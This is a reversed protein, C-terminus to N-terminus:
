RVTPRRPCATWRPRGGAADMRVIEGPVLVTRGPHSADIQIPLVLRERAGTVWDAHPTAALAATLRGRRVTDGASLAVKLDHVRLAAFSADNSQRWWVSTSTLGAYLGTGLGIVAAIAIVLPFRRRLDRWSWRLWLLRSGM